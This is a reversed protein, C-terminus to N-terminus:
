GTDGLGGTTGIDPWATYVQTTPKTAPMKLQEYLGQGASKFDSLYQEIVIYYNGNPSVGLGDAPRSVEFQPDEGLVSFPKGTDNFLVITCYPEVFFHHVLGSRLDGYVDKQRIVGGYAGGMWHGLFHNFKQTLTTLNYKDAELSGMFESYQLLSMALYHRGYPNRGADREARAADLAKEIDSIMWGFVYTNFLTHVDM